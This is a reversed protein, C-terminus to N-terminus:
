DAATRETAPRTVGCPTRGDEDMSLPNHEKGRIGIQSEQRSATGSTDAFRMRLYAPPSGILRQLRTVTTTSLQLSKALRSTECHTSSTNQRSQKAACMRGSARVRNM